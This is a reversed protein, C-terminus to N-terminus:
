WLCRGRPLCGPSFKGWRMDSSSAASQAASLRFGRRGHMFLIPYDVLDNDTAPLLRKETSIRLQAQERAIELLNSLANPAEDGGGGYSLKAVYLTGRAIETSAADRAALKPRDLKEKLERNTAYTVVNEGIRVCAEIEDRVTKPYGLDRGDQYLEWFCSLNQPCYVVSTRCCADVGYLPRLYDSNVPQEAFWVAHDPPLLRLPSEPFLDKMLQRFARDFEQGDCAAEAFIFGGRQVYDRLRGREDANLVIADKGSLFLVPAELLDPVSARDMEVTQWSLDRKWRKEIRWTLNRVASRHLDWNGGERLNLKSMVVPRRGKSLFLVAFSTAIMKNSEFPAKGEWFGELTEQQQVLFQAGERFWDHEGIFRNGSLRGVRELGYLYYYHWTLDGRLGPHFNVSFKSGLWHFAKAVHDDDTHPLCCEISGNNVEADGGGLRGAAIICSAIGACVMSGRIDNEDARYSWSGDPKQMRQWYALTRRWTADSVSVGVLQSEYLAMLAFQSNSNDGPPKGEHYSWAGEWNGDKIQAGELWQVNKAIALKDKDPEAACFVMTQLATAYTSKPNGLSRLYNLASQISPDKKDVGGNILALTVLATLGGPQGPHDKWSGDTPDQWKKLFATGRSISERVAADTLEQASAFPSNMGLLLCPLLVGILLKTRFMASGKPEDTLDRAMISFGTM